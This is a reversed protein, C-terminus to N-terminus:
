RLVTGRSDSHGRATGAREGTFVATVTVTWGREHLPAVLFTRISRMTHLERERMAADCSGSAYNCAMVAYAHKALVCGHDNLGRFSDGRMILQVHTTAASAIPRALLWRLFLIALCASM